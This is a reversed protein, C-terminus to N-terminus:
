TQVVEKLSGFEKLWPIIEALIAARAFRQFSARM